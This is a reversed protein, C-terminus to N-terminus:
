GHSDEASGLMSGTATPSPSLEEQCSSILKGSSSALDIISWITKQVGDIARNEGLSKTM